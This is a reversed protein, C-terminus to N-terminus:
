RKIGYTLKFSTCFGGECLASDRGLQLQVAPCLGENDRNSGFDLVEDEMTVGEDEEV